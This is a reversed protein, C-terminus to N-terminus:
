TPEVSVVLESLVAPDGWITYHGPTSLTREFRITGDLPVRITAVFRGLMPSVRSKRRAQTLTNQVSLRDWVGALVPDSPVVKRQAQNSTFDLLSPPNTRVIRYFLRFGQETV